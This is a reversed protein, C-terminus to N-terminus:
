GLFARAIDEVHNIIWEIIENLVQNTSEQLIQNEIENSIFELMENGAEEGLQIALSSIDLFYWEM